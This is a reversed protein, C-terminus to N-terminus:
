LGSSGWAITVWASEIRRLRVCRPAVPASGRCPSPAPMMIWNGSANRRLTQPRLPSVSGAAAVSEHVRREDSGRLPGDHDVLVSGIVEGSVLLPLCTSTTATVGCIECELLAPAEGGSEFPRSLRVALCSRPEASQLPERLPSDDRVPTTAELRDRSNNRNLVVVETGTVGREIHRKLMAHAERETETVQLLESFAEQSARYAAEEAVAEGRENASDSLQEVMTNLGAALTGLEDRRRADLRAGLDGGAVQASFEAYERLRMVIGRALWITAILSVLAFGLLLALLRNRATGDRRLAALGDRGAALHADSYTSLEHLLPDVGGDLEADLTALPPSGPLGVRNLIGERVRLYRPYATRLRAISSAETPTVVDDGALVPAMATALQENSTALEHDLQDILAPDRVIIREAVFGSNESARLRAHDTTVREVFVQAIAHAEGTTGRTTDVAAWVIGGLAVLLLCTAALVKALVGFGPSPRGRM